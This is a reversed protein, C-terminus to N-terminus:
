STYFPFKGLDVHCRLHQPLKTIAPLPCPVGFNKPASQTGNQFLGGKRFELDVVTTCMYFSSVYDFGCITGCTDSYSLITCLTTPYNSILSVANNIYNDMNGRQIYTSGMWYGCGLDTCYDVLCKTCTIAGFPM